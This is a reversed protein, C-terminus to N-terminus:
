TRAAYTKGLPDAPHALQHGSSVHKAVIIKEELKKCLIHCDVEIYKTREHFVVNEAIHIAVKNDDYLRVACKPLIGIMTLLDRIWILKLSVNAMTKYNSEASSRSVM